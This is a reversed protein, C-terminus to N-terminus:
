FVEVKDTQYFKTDSFIDTWSVNDIFRDPYFQNLLGFTSVAALINHPHLNLLEDAYNKWYSIVLNSYNNVSQNIENTKYNPVLESMYRLAYLADM